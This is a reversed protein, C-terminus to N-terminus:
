PKAGATELLRVAVTDHKQRALDLATQGLANRDDPRAGHALLVAANCPSYIAIMLPTWQDKFSANADAGTKILAEIATNNNWPSMVAENLAANLEPQAYKHTNLLNRLGISDGVRAAHFLENQDGYPSVWNPLQPPVWPNAFFEVAGYIKSGALQWRWRSIVGFGDIGAYLVATREEAEAAKDLTAELGTKAIENLTATDTIQADPGDLQKYYLRRAIRIHDSHGERWVGEIEFYARQVGSELMPQMYPNETGEGFKGQLLQERLSSCEPLREVLQTVQPSREARPTTGTQGTAM